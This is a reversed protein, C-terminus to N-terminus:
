HGTPTCNLLCKNAISEVRFEACVGGWLLQENDVLAADDLTSIRGTNM